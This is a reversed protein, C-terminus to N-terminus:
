KAEMEWKKGNQTDYLLNAQYEAYNYILTSRLSSYWLKNQVKLKIWSNHFRSFHVKKKENEFLIRFYITIFPTFYLFVTISKVWISREEVNTFYSPGRDINTPLLEM